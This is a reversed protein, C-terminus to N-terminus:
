SEFFRLVFRGEDFLLYSYYEVWDGLTAFTKERGDIVYQRLIPKHCHGLIVADYSQHFKVISFSNMKEALQDKSEETLGKSMNSSLEAMKWRVFSPINKQVRGFLRTRLVRRLFLYSTNTTDVTDGHSLLIRLGDLVIDAWETFVDMGLQGTFYSALSFDHNGECFHVRVGSKQLERLESIVTVYEPYIRGNACFWFDFFDGAIFLHDIGSRITSFFRLLKQYGCDHERKLHADSLFVAKM